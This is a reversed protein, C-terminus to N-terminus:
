PGVWTYRWITRPTRTLDVVDGGDRARFFRHGRKEYRLAPWDAREYIGDPSEQTVQAKVPTETTTMGLALFKM